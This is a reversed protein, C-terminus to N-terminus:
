MLFMSFFLGILFSHNASILYVHIIFRNVYWLIVEKILIKIKEVKEKGRGREEEEVADVIWCGVGLECEYILWWM